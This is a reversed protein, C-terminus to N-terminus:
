LAAVPRWKVGQDGSATRMWITASYADARSLRVSRICSLAALAFAFRRATEEQPRRSSLSRMLGRSCRPLCMSGSTKLNIVQEYRTPAQVPLDATGATIHGSCRSQAAQFRSPSQCADLTLLLALLFLLKM